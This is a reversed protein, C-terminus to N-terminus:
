DIYNLFEINEQGEIKLNQLYAFEAHTYFHGYMKYHVMRMSPKAKEQYIEDNWNKGNLYTKPHKQFQKDKITALYIPLTEKIKLRDPEPIKLYKEKCSKSDLKKDYLTWFEEFSFCTITNDKDKDNDKEKDNDKYSPNQKLMAKANSAKQKGGLSGSIQRKKRSDSLLDFQENLFNISIIDTKEDFYIIESDILLIIIKLNNKFKKKINEFTVDCNCIWYYCCVQLFLGQVSLSELSIKGNQWEAPTFRFYPLEKSM